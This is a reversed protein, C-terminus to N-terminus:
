PANTSRAQTTQFSEEIADLLEERLSDATEQTKQRNPEPGHPHVLNSYSTGVFTNYSIIKKKVDDWGRPTSGKLQVLTGLERELRMSQMPETSDCVEAFANKVERLCTHLDQYYPKVVVTFNISDRNLDAIQTNSRNSASTGYLSAVAGFISAGAAILACILTAMDVRNKDVKDSQPEGTM